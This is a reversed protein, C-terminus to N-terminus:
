GREKRNKNFGSIHCLVKGRVAQPAYALLTAVSKSEVAGPRARDLLAGALRDSPLEVRGNKYMEGLVEAVIGVPRSVSLLEVEARGLWIYEGRMEAIGKRLRRGADGESWTEILVLPWAHTSGAVEELIEDM